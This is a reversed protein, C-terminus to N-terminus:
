LLVAFEGETSFRQYYSCASVYLLALFADRRVSGYTEKHRPKISMTIVTEMVYASYHLTGQVTYSNNALAVIETTVVRMESLLNPKCYWVCAVCCNFCTTRLSLIFAIGVCECPM